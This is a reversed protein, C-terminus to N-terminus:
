NNVSKNKNEHETADINRYDREKSGQVYLHPATCSPPGLLTVAWLRYRMNYFVDWAKVYYFGLPFETLGRGRM